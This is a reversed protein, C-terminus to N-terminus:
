NEKEEKLLKCAKYNLEYFEKLTISNKYHLEYMEDVRCILPRNTYISCLNNKLYRCKGTEDALHQYLKSTSVKECCKGCCDCKFM